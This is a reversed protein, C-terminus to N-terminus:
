YMIAPQLTAESIRQKAQRDEGSSRQVQRAETRIPLHPSDRRTLAATAQPHLRFHLQRTRFIKLPGRDGGVTIAKLPLRQRDKM